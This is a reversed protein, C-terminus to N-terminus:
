EDIGESLFASWDWSVTGLKLSTVVKVDTGTTTVTVDGVCVRKVVSHPSLTRGGGGGGGFGFVGAVGVGVGGM